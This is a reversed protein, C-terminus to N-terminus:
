RAQTNVDLDILDFQSYLYLVIQHSGSVSTKYSGGIGQGGEGYDKAWVEDQRKDVRDKLDKHFSLVSVM